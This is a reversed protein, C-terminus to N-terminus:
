KAADLARVAEGALNNANPDLRSALRKAEDLKGLAQTLQDAAAKRGDGAARDRARTVPAKADDLQRQADGFNQNYLSVRAELVRARADTLDFQQQAKVAAEEATVRGSRGWAYGLGLAVLILVIVTLILKFGRLM